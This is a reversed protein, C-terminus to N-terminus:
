SGSPPTPEFYSKLAEVHKRFAETGEATIHATTCPRKGKFTKELALYGAASLKDLQAGLNGPTSRTEKQLYTFEAEEVGILISM